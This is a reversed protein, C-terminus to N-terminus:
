SAPQGAHALFIPEVFGETNTLQYRSIDDLTLDDELRVVEPSLGAERLRDVYDWGYRRVHDRQGYLRLRDEPETISPDEVTREVVIPTMVLAWGAPALIRRIERLAARDDPIHEMVHNCMVVDFSDDPLPIATLDFNMDVAPNDLDATVYRHPGSNELLRRVPREPAIHL